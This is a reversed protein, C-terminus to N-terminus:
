TRDLFVQVGSGYCICIALMIAIVVVTVLAQLPKKLVFMVVRHIDRITLRFGERAAHLESRLQENMRLM